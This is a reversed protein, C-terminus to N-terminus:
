LISNDWIKRINSHIEDMVTKNDIFNDLIFFGKANIINWGKGNLKVIAPLSGDGDLSLIEDFWQKSLLEGKTNVFNWGKGNLKVCVFGNGGFRCEDFWQKL